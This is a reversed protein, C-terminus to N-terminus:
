DKDEGGRGMADDLRSKQDDSLQAYLADFAPCIIAFALLMGDIERPLEEQEDSPGARCAARMTEQAQQVALEFADFAAHQNATPRVVARIRSLDRVAGDGLWYGCVAMGHPDPLAGAHDGRGIPADVSAAAISGGGLVVLGALTAARLLRAMATMPM